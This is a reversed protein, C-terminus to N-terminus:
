MGVNVPFSPVDMQQSAQTLMQSLSAERPPWWASTGHRTLTLTSSGSPASPPKPLFFFFFFFCRASASAASAAGTVPSRTFSGLRWSESALTCGCITGEAQNGVCALNHALVMYKYIRCARTVKLRVDLMDAHAHM